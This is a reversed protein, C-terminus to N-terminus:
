DGLLIMVLAGYHDKAMHEKKGATLEEIDKKFREELMKDFEDDKAFWKKGVEKNNSDRDWKSDPGYWVEMIGRYEEPIMMTSTRKLSKKRGSESSKPKEEEKKTEEKKPTEEVKPAPKPPPPTPKEVVLKPKPPAPKIKTAKEQLAKKSRPQIVVKDFSDPFM